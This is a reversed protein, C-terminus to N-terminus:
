TPNSWWSRPVEVVGDFNGDTRDAKSALGTITLGEREVEDILANAIAARSQGCKACFDSWDNFSHPPCETKNRIAAREAELERMRATITDADDAAFTRSM